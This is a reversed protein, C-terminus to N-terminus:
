GRLFSTVEHILEEPREAHVWHGADITVVEVDSINAKLSFIDDDTIYGSKGGRIFLTEHDYSIDMASTMVDYTEYLLRFNTKWRWGKEPDRALSKLIFQRVMPSDIRASLSQDAESRSTIQSFDIDFVSEFIIDHGRSYAKPAIDVVILRDVRDPFMQALTMAVKGGMSHGLVHTKELGIDEMVGIIDWAAQEYSWTETWPSRSHNAQDVLIVQYDEALQKGITRWNDGSGFLGHLIILPQGEGIIKYYLMTRLYSLGIIVTRRMGWVLSKERSVM